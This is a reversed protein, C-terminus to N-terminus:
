VRHHPLGNWNGQLEFVNELVGFKAPPVTSVISVITLSRYAVCAVVVPDVLDVVLHIEIVMIIGEVDGLVCHEVGGVFGHKYGRCSWRQM